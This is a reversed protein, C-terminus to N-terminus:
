QGAGDVSLSFRRRLIREEIEDPRLVSRCYFSSKPTTKAQTVHPHGMGSIGKLVASMMVKEYIDAFREIGVLRNSRIFGMQVEARALCFCADFQRRAFVRQLQHQAVGIM